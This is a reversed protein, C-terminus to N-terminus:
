SLKAKSISAVEVENSSKHRKSDSSSSITSSVSSSSTSGSSSGGSSPPGGDGDHRRRPYEDGCRGGKRPAPVRGRRHAERSSDRHHDRGESRRHHRDGERSRSRARHQDARAHQAHLDRGRRDHGSGTDGRWRERSRSRRRDLRGERDPPEAHVARVEWGRTSRPPSRSGHLAYVHPPSRRRERGSRGGSADAAHPVPGHSQLQQEWERLRAERRRLEAERQEYNLAQDRLRARQTELNGEEMMLDEERKVLRSREEEMLAREHDVHAKAAQADHHVEQMTKVSTDKHQELRKKAAKYDKHLKAKGAELLAIREREEKV